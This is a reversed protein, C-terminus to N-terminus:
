CGEVKKASLFRQIFDVDNDTTPLKNLGSQFMDDNLRLNLVKKLHLLQDNSLLGLMDQLISNILVDKM